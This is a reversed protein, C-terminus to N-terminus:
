AHFTNPDLDRPCSKFGFSRIEPSPVEICLVARHVAALKSTCSAEIILRNQDRAEGGRFRPNGTYIEAKERKALAATFYDALSVASALAM